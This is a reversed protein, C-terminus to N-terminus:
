EKIFKTSFIQNGATSATAYYVGKKLGAVNFNYATVNAIATAAVINGQANVISLKYNLSADLGEIHLTNKVPNPYIHLTNTAAMAADVDNIVASAVIDGRADVANIRYYSAPQANAATASLAYSYLNKETPYVKAIETFSGTANNSQNISYYAISGDDAIGQWYLHHNKIWKKIRAILSRQSGNNYRALALNYYPQQESDPPLANGAAVIKGDPQLSISNAYAYYNPIATTVVGNTG